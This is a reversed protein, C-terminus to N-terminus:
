SGGGKIENARAALFATARERVDPDVPPVGLFDALSMGVAAMADDQGWGNKLLARVVEVDSAVPDGMPVRDPVEPEPLGEFGLIQAAEDRSYGAGVLAAIAKAVKELEEASPKGLDPNEAKAKSKPRKAPMGGRRRVEDELDKDPLVVGANVLLTLTEM